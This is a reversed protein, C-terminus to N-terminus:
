TIELKENVYSSIQVIFNRANLIYDSILKEEPV